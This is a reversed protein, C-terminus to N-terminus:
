VHVRWPWTLAPASRSASWRRRSCQRTTSAEGAVAVVRGEQQLRKLVDAKKDPLRDPQPECNWTDSSCWATNIASVTDIGVISSEKKIIMM